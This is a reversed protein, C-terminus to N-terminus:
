VPLNNLDFDAIGPHSANAAAYPLAYALADTLTMGCQYCGHLLCALLVDGSGTPSVPTIKPPIASYPPSGQQALWVPKDGDSIIWARARSSVLMSALRKAFPEALSSAPQLADFEDRNIKVLALSQQLAWALPPGYTDAVLTGRATWRSLASRLPEADPSTWGPFSGCLALVNGALLQEIYAACAKWAGPDPAADPGLFTTESQDDGRIV